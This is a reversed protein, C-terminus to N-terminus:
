LHNMAYLAFLFGIGTGLVEDPFDFGPHHLHLQEAGSGIGVYGGPITETYYGFDESWRFPKELMKLPINQQAAAQTIMSICAPDNVTAPFAETFSIGHDLGETAAIRKVVEEVKRTLKEM